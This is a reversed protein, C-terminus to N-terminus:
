QKQIKWLRLQRVREKTEESWADEDDGYEAIIDEIQKEAIPGRTSTTGYRKINEADREDKSPGTPRHSNTKSPPDYKKLEAELKKGRLKEEMDDHDSSMHQRGRDRKAKGERRKSEELETVVNSTVAAKIRILNEDSLREEAAAVEVEASIRRERAEAADAAAEEFAAEVKAARRMAWGQSWYSLINILKFGSVSKESPLSQDKQYIEGKLPKEEDSM